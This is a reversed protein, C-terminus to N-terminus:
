FKPYLDELTILIGAYRAAKIVTKMAHTPIEGGTGGVEVPYTWRYISSPNWYDGGMDKLVKALERAGGFKKIINEAQPYVLARRQEETKRGRMGKFHIKDGRTYTEPIVTKHKRPHAM